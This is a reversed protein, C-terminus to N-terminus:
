TWCCRRHKRSSSPRRSTMGAFARIAATSEWFTCATLKVFGDEGLDRRLLYAGAFGALGRLAPLLSDAFYRSYDRRGRQHSVGVLDQRDHGESRDHWFDHGAAIHFYLDAPPSRRGVAPSPPTDLGVAPFSPRAYAPILLPHSLLRSRVSFTM